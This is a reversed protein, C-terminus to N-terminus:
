RGRGCRREASPGSRAAAPAVRRSGDTRKARVAGPSSRSVAICAPDAVVLAKGHEKRLVVAGSQASADEAGHFFVDTPNTPAESPQCSREWCKWISHSYVRASFPLMAKVPSISRAAQLPSNTSARPKPDIHVSAPWCARDVSTRPSRPSEGASRRATSCSASCAASVRRVTARLAIKIASRGRDQAGVLRFIKQAADDGAERNRPSEVFAVLIEASVVQDPRAIQDFGRARQQGGSRDGVRHAHQAIQFRRLFRVAVPRLIEPEVSTGVPAADLHVFGGEGDQQDIQQAALGGFSQALEVAPPGHHAFGGAENQAVPRDGLLIAPFFVRAVRREGQGRFDGRQQGPGVDGVEGAVGFLGCVMRSVASAQFSLM